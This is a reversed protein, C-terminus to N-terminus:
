MCVNLPIQKLRSLLVSSLLLPVAAAAVAAVEALFDQTRASDRRDVVAVVVADVVPLRGVCDVASFVHM